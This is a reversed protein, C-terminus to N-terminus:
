QDHGQQRHFFVTCMHCPVAGGFCILQFSNMLATSTRAEIQEAINVAESNTLLEAHVAM